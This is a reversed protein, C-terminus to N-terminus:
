FPPTPPLVGPKPFPPSPPLLPEFGGKDHGHEAWDLPGNSSLDIIQITLFAEGAKDLPSQTVQAIFGSGTIGAYNALFRATDQGLIYVGEGGRIVAEIPGTVKTFTPGDEGYQKAKQAKAKEMALNPVGVFTAHFARGTDAVYHPLFHTIGYIIANLRKKNCKGYVYVDLSKYNNFGNDVWDGVLKGAGGVLEALGKATNGVVIVGGEATKYISTLAEGVVKGLGGEPNTQLSKSCGAIVGAIGGLSMKLIDRRTYGTSQNTEYMKEGNM